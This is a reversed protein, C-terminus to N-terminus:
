VRIFPSMLSNSLLWQEEPIRWRGEATPALTARAARLEEPNLMAPDIGRATRLSTIVMDNHASHATVEDTVTFAEPAAMYDRLSHPNYRRVSGDFSHAGPGLGLYPTSDWYSSNHRSHREPLGFNSIEYHELGAEAAARCLEHYMQTVTDDDAEEVKGAQLRAYLATGPEYSLLYASLHPLGQELLGHLSRRWSDFDQGPLGYILDCSINDIGGRRLTAIAEIARAATHRRGLAALESDVLSQVGMSVRNVGMAVVSQVWEPTVDEPNAEITVEAGPGRMVVFPELLAPAIISPTGGGVYITDYCGAHDTEHRRARWEAMLAAAYDAHAVHRLPGSYFDCYACKSHCFPIHIYLGSM